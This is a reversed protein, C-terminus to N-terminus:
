KSVTGWDTNPRLLLSLRVRDKADGEYGESSPGVMKEQDEAKLRM